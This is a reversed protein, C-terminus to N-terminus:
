VYCLGKIATSFFYKLDNANHLVPPYKCIVFGTDKVLSDLKVAAHNSQICDVGFRLKNSESKNSKTDTALKLEGLVFTIQCLTFLPLFEYSFISHM